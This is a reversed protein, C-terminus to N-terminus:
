EKMVRMIITHVNTRGNTDSGKTTLENWEKHIKARTGSMVIPLFDEPKRLRIKRSQKADFNIIAMGKAGFGGPLAVMETIMRSRPEFLYLRQQGIVEEPKISVLKFEASSPLYKLNKAVESAPKQKKGRVIKKRPKSVTLLDLDTLWGEYAKIRRNRERSSINYAEKCQEDGNKLDMMDALRREIWPRVYRDLDGKNENLAQQREYLNYETKKGDIWDDEIEDLEISMRCVAHVYQPGAAAKEAAEDTDRKLVFANVRDFEGHVLERESDNFVFGQYHMRVLSEVTTRFLNDPSRKIRSISQKDWKLVDKAYAMLSPLADKSSVKMYNYWNYARIKLRSRDEDTLPMTTWTPEEGVYKTDFRRPLVTKIKKKRRGALLSM